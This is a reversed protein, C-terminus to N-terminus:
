RRSFMAPSGDEDLLWKRIEGLDAVFDTEGCQLYRWCSFAGAENEIARRSEGLFELALERRGIIGCTVALCSFYNANKPQPEPGTQHIEFIEEFLSVPPVGTRGWIAMGLNFAQRQRDWPEVETPMRRLVEEATEFFGAGILTLGLSTGDASQLSEPVIRGGDYMTRVLEAGVGNKQKTDRLNACLRALEHVDLKQIAPRKAVNLSLAHVESADLKALLSFAAVVHRQSADDDDLLRNIMTPLNTASEAFMAWDALWLNDNLTDQGATVLREIQKIADTFEGESAKLMALIRIIEPTKWNKKQIDALKARDELPLRSPPPARVSGDGRAGSTVLRQLFLEVGHEDLQNHMQVADALRRYQRTLRSNPRHLTFIKQELLELSPYNQILVESQRSYELTSRFKELLNELVSDEDDLTPLNSPVFLKDIRRKTSAEEEKMAKLVLSLGSLNQANPWFVFTVLDPLQRTCVGGIDTHGTRSDILVYDVRLVDRWQAKLDEFLLFGDQHEYLDAFDLQSLRTGYEEDMRGAPMIWIRGGEGASETCLHIFNRVDPSTGSKQWAEVFDIIGASAGPEVLTSGGFNFSTVGPAELDFDAILVSKGRKALEAAVNALALSRGVGGKYSYFTTVFM